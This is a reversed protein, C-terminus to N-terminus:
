RIVGQPPAGTPLLPALLTKLEADLDRQRYRKVRERQGAIVAERLARDRTLRVIMEAISAFDKNRFLVGAGDMTDPVAAAAYALVPVDHAMSEMIPICFGEHESMCLFVSASRYLASLVPQTVSGLIRVSDAGAARSESLLFAYYPETGAFSGALILRAQPEVHRRLCTFAALVDELRKNPAGRGVFLVNLRGDSFAAMATRDPATGIFDFDLVLPFTRVNSYGLANLEAANFDSDALNVEAAGVLAGVQRIGLALAHATQPNVWDFYRPPTVNHYLIAKRCPLAAFAENVPSGISLHLLAADSQRCRAPAEAIDLTDGRLEPLIRRSESFILSECGWNRFIRRLTRAENSIADRTTYGAVFQHIAPTM